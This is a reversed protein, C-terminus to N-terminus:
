KESKIKKTHIKSFTLHFYSIRKEMLPGSGCFWGAGGALQKGVGPRNWADAGERERM